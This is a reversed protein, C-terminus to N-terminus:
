KGLILNLKQQIESLEADKAKIGDESDSMSNKKAKIVSIISQAMKKSIGLDRLYRECDRIDKLEELDEPDAKVGMVRASKDAPFNVISIELLESINKIHCVDNDDYEYDRDRLRFGISMGDLSGFKLASYVDQAEKLELNLRGKVKLGKSDVSLEEWKGIPVGWRDHQYFMLPKQGESIVNDYATPEITDGYSDVGGFVSAYGEIVGEEQVQYSSKTCIYRM